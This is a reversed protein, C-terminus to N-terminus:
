FQEHCQETIYRNWELMAVAAVRAKERDFEVNLKHKAIGEMEEILMMIDDLQATGFLSGVIGCYKDRQEPIAQVECPDWIYHIVEEIRTYLEVENRMM